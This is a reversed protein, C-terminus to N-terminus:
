QTRGNYGQTRTDTTSAQEGTNLGTAGTEQPLTPLRGDCTQKQEYDACHRMALRYELFFNTLCKDCIRHWRALYSVPDLTCLLCPKVYKPIIWSWAVQDDWYNGLTKIGNWSGVPSSEAKANTTEDSM